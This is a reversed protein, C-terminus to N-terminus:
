GMRKHNYRGPHHPGEPADRHRYRMKVTERRQDLKMLQEDTLIERVALKHEVQLKRIKNMLETQDDILNYVAKMDVNEESLLTRERAKLEAMKSNLPKMTKYHEIRLAKMQEQQDETLNLPYFHREGRFEGSQAYAASLVITVLVLIVTIKLRNNKM